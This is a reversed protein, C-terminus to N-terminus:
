SHAPQLSPMQQRTLTPVRRGPGATGRQPRPVKPLDNEEESLAAIKAMPVQVGARLCFVTRVTETPCLDRSPGDHVEFILDGRLTKFEWMVSRRNERLGCAPKSCSLSRPSVSLVELKIPKTPDSSACRYGTDRTVGGGGGPQDPAPAQKSFREGSSRAGVSNSPRPLGTYSICESTPLLRCPQERKGESRQPPSHISYYQACLSM